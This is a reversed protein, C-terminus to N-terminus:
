LLDLTSWSRSWDTNVTRSRDQGGRKALFLVAPIIQWRRRVCRMQLRQQDVHRPSAQYRRLAQAGVHSTSYLVKQPLSLVKRTRTIGVENKQQGRRKIAKQRQKGGM